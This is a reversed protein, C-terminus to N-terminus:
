LWVIVFHWLDLCLPFLTPRHTSLRLKLLLWSLLLKEGLIWSLLSIKCDAADLYLKSTFIRIKNFNLRSFLFVSFFIERNITQAQLFQNSLLKWRRTPRSSSRWKTGFGRICCSCWFFWWRRFEPLLKNNTLHFWGELLRNLRFQKHWRLKNGALVNYIHVM